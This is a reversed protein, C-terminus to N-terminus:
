AHAPVGTIPVHLFLAFVVYGILGGGIAVADGTRTPEPFVRGQAADRQRAARYAIVAWLGFAAFLIIDGLRGNAMLHALAWLAVAVLMPHGVANRLRNAPSYAAVLFIFAPIMVLAMAHATWEPPIWIWSGEIRTLGYGYIAVALGILSVVAHGIKWPIEGHRAIQANRWDEAVIRVSHAGLFLLLGLLMVIM